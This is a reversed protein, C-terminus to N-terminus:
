AVRRRVTIRRRDRAGAVLDRLADPAFALGILLTPAIMLGWYFTDVRGFLALLLAFAALTACVRLALPDRWSAWGVLALAVLMWKGSFRNGLFGFAVASISFLLYFSSAITGYATASLGLEAMMPAAALGIISKDAFNIAVFLMLLAVVWRARTRPTM